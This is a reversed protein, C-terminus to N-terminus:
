LAAGLGAAEGDGLFKNSICIKPEVESRSLWFHLSPSVSQTKVRGAPSKSAEYLKLVLAKCCPEM